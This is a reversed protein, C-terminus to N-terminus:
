VVDSGPEIPSTFEGSYAMSDAYGSVLWGSGVRIEHSPTHERSLQPDSTPVHTPKIWSFGGHVRINAPTLYKVKRDPPSSGCHGWHSGGRISIIYIYLIYIIYIYIIYIIYIFKLFHTTDSSIQIEEM